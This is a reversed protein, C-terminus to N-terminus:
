KPRPELRIVGLNTTGRYDHTWPFTYEQSFYDPHLVQLRRSWQFGAPVDSVDPIVWTRLWHFRRHPKLTVDGSPSSTAAIEPREPVQIVGGVIPQQSSSDVLRAKVKPTARTTHPYPLLGVVCGSFLIPAASLLLSRIKM